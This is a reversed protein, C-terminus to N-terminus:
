ASRARAHRDVVRQEDDAPEALLQGGPSSWRRAAIRRVMAVAPRVTSTEPSVTASACPWGASRGAPREQPRHPEAAHGGDQDGHQGRQGHQRRRSATSPWRTSATRTGSGHRRAVRTGPPRRAVPPHRPGARACRSAGAPANGPRTTATSSAHQGRREQPDVEAADVLPHQRGSAARGPRRRASRRRTGRRCSRASRAHQDGSRRGVRRPREDVPDRRHGPHGPDCTM